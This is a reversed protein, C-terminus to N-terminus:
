HTHKAPFCPIQTPLDASSVMHPNQYHRAWQQDHRHQGRAQEGLPGTTRVDDEDHRVVVGRMGDARVPRADVLRRVRDAPARPRARVLTNAVLEIQVGLRAAIRVPWYECRLPTVMNLRNSLERM